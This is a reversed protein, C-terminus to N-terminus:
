WFFMLHSWIAHGADTLGLRGLIGIIQIRGANDSKFVEVRISTVPHPTGCPEMRPGGRKLKGHKGKAVNDAFVVSALM